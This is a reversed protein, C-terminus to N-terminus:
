ANGILKNWDDAFKQLGVDTLDHQINQERWSTELHLEQYPLDNLDGSDYTYSNGPVPMGADAWAQLIKMPCTIIDAGLKLTYMFHELNRVSAVLVEVHGDSQTYMKMENEILSMGNVGKDDLRGVFPSLFVDGKKAGATANYVAAGQDQTFVLTMNVRGGDEKVFTEAAELGSQITPFKIHANPIWTWMDRAQALMDETSTDKDGYVEISVSGDPIMQSIEQVVGKYFDNIEQSNLVGGDEIKKQLDPNKAVLSPNTTQGDLFGLLDLAKQTDEPNGSDLFIRTKLGDPRAM